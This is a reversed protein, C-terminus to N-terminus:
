PLPRPCWPAPCQSRPARAPRMTLAWTLWSSDREVIKTTFSHRKAISNLRSLIACRDVAVGMLDALRLNEHWSIWTTPQQELHTMRRGGRELLCSAGAAVCGCLRHLSPSARYGRSKTATCCPRQGLKVVAAKVIRCAAIACCVHPKAKPGRVM